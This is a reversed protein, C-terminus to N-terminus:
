DLRVEYLNFARITNEATSFIILGDIESLNMSRKAPAAKIDRLPITLTSYGPNVTYHQNYRDNHPQNGSRHAIDHIRITFRIEETGEVELDVSLTSYNSWDAVLDRFELRPAAGSVFEVRTYLKGMSRSWKTATRVNIGSYFMSESDIDGSILVPFQMNRRAIAQSTAILPMASWVLLAIATILSVGTWLPRKRIGIAALLFSAAGTGDSIIDGLSASRQLPIQVGEIIAGLLLSGIFAASGRQWDTWASPMLALLFLSVLGFIPVHMWDFLTQFWVGAEGPRYVLLTMLLIAIAAIAAIPRSPRAETSPM